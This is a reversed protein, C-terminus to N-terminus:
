YTIEVKNSFLDMLKQKGLYTPNNACFQISYKHGKVLNYGKNITIKTQINEGPELEIFDEPLVMRKGMMGSYLVHKGNEDTITFITIRFIDDVCITITDLYIKDESSNNTFLVNAIVIDDVLEISLNVDISKMAIM